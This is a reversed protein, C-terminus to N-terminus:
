RNEELYPRTPQDTLDKSCGAVAPFVASISENSESRLKKSPGEGISLRLMSSQGFLQETQLQPQVEVMASKRKSIPRELVETTSPRSSYILFIIFNFM